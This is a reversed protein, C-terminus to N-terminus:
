RFAQSRCMVAISSGAMRSVASPVLPGSVAARVFITHCTLTAALNGSPESVSTPSQPRSAASCSHAVQAASCAAIGRGSSFARACADSSVTAGQM